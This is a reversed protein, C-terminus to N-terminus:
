QFPTRGSLEYARIAPLIGTFLNILYALLNPTEILKETGVFSKPIHGNAASEDLGLFVQISTLRTVQNGGVSRRFKVIVPGIDVVAAGSSQEVNVIVGPEVEHIRDRDIGCVRTQIGAHRRSRYLDISDQRGRTTITAVPIVVVFHQRWGSIGGTWQMSMM